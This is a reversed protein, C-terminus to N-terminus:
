NYQGDIVEIYNIKKSNYDNIKLEYYKSLENESRLKFSCEKYFNEVQKNKQTKVYDARLKEIGKKKMEKIIYDMFVYEINRGIVRCSMLFTDVTANKLDSDFSIICLGTVGSDGFRDSVSFNFVNIIASDIFNKIEIDSYRKTTLNFQNTKQSLQSLRSISYIDDKFISVKLKLSALYDEIGKFSSKASDRELQKKYMQNRNKDEATSSFNFFLSLNNRIMQPYEFINKPVKLVTVEPLKEKVLNVEFESDDVFVFSDLSINLMNSIDILNSAKDRWNIKKITIIHQKLQMHPHSDIVENVEDFNNKSCLGLMVGKNYLQVAMAQVEAFISGEKDNSSMQIDKFGDEGLIGKWLTNDCDFIIMKKSKGNIAMIYPKTFESYSKFFDITFLAKSSYFHRLNISKNLGVNAIVRDVEILRTNNLIKEELYKNLQEALKDLKNKNSTFGSFPLSSFKNILVIPSSSTADIVYSIESTIKLFIEEYQSDSLGEIKYHLGEIINSLEWFFIITDSKKYKKSDQLINDYDGFEVFANIKESRLSFELIEKLQHVIINSIIVVSYPNEKLEDKLQKNKKLIDIYKLDNM